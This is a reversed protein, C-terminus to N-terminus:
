NEHPLLFHCLKVRHWIRMDRNHLEFEVSDRWQDQIHLAKM